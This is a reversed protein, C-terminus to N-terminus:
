KKRRKKNRARLRKSKIQQSRKPIYIANSDSEKLFGIDSYPELTLM